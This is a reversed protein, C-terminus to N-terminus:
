RAEEEDKEDEEDKGTRYDGHGLDERARGDDKEAEPM